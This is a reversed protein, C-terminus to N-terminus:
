NLTEFMGVLMIYSLERESDVNWKLHIVDKAKLVGDRQLQEFDAACQRAGDVDTFIRGGRNVEYEIGLVTGCRASDIIIDDATRIVEESHRRQVTELREVAKKVMEDGVGLKKLVYEALGSFVNNLQSHLGIAVSYDSQEGLLPVIGKPHCDHSYVYEARNELDNLFSDTETLLQGNGFADQLFTIFQLYAKEDTGTLDFRLTRVSAPLKDSQPANIDVESANADSDPYNVDVLTVREFHEALREIEIDDCKGAGYIILTSGKECHQLIYDTVAKRYDSWELYANENIPCKRYGSYIESATCDVMPM